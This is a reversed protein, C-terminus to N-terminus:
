LIGYLAARSRPGLTGGVDDHIQLSTIANASGVYRGGSYEAGSAGVGDNFANHMTITKLMDNRSYWPIDIVCHAVFNDNGRNNAPVTGIFWSGQSVQSGSLVANTAVSNAHIIYDLEYSSTTGNMRMRLGTTPLGARNSQGVVYLRLHSFSQPINSLNITTTGAGVVENLRVPGSSRTRELIAIREELSGMGEQIRSQPALDRYPRLTRTPPM